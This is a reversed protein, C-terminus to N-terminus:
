SDPFYRKRITPNRVLARDLELISFNLTEISRRGCVNDIKDFLTADILASTMVGFGEARYQDLMDGIDQVKTAGLSNSQTLKCQFIWKRRKGGPTGPAGRIEIDRGGDRSRSNGLKRITSSDFMPHAYLIDYCLQEFQEDDLSKWDLALTDSLGMATAVSRTADCIKEYLNKTAREDLPKTDYLIHSHTSDNLIILTGTTHILCTERHPGIAWQSEPISARIHEGFPSHTFSADLWDFMDSPWMDDDHRQAFSACVRSKFYQSMPFYSVMGDSLVFSKGAVM